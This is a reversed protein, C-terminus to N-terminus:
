AINISATTVEIDIADSNNEVFVEVTDGTSLPLNAQSTLQAGNKTVGEGKSSAVISGNKAVYLSLTKEGGSEPGMTAIVLVIKIVNEKGIYTWTGNSFSFREKDGDIWTTNVKVATNVATIATPLTNGTFNGFAFFSSNSVNKISAVGIDPDSQDRSGAKFFDGGGTKHVGGVIDIDGGYNAAIDLYFETSEPRSDVISMYFRESAAGILQMFGGGNNPGANFQGIQCSITNVDTFKCGNECGVIAIIDMTCFAFSTLEICLKCNVFVPVEMLLSNGNSMNIFTGNPSSMFLRVVDLSVGTQSTTIFNGTGTYTILNFHLGYFAYVEDQDILEITATGFNISQRFLYQNVPLKYVTGDLFQALDALSDVRLPGSELSNFRTDLDTQDPLNGLIEGWTPASQGPSPSSIEITKGANSVSISKSLNDIKIGM